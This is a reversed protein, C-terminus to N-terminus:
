SLPGCDARYLRHELYDRDFEQDTDIWKSSMIKYETMPEDKYIPYVVFEIDKNKDSFNYLDELSERYGDFSKKYIDIINETSKEILCFGDMNQKILDNVMETYTKFKHKPKILILKETIYTTISKM